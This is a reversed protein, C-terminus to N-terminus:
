SKKIRIITLSYPKFEMDFSKGFGQYKEQKPSIKLPQEFTNEESETASSLTFIDGNSNVSGGNALNISTKFPSSEGNVVKIVIENKSQDIGAIAYHKIYPSYNYKFISKGDIFL